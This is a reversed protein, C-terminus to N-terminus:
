RSITDSVRFYDFDVFEGTEQTTFNFLGFRYGVIEYDVLNRSKMIPMGPSMHTTTSSMNYVDGVRGVSPDPVDPWLIPNRADSASEKGHARGSLVICLLVLPALFLWTSKQAKMLRQMYEDRHSKM